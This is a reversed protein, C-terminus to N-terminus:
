SCNTATLSLCITQWQATRKKEDLNRIQHLASGFLSEMQRAKPIMLLGSPVPKEFDYQRIRVFGEESWSLPGLCVSLILFSKPWWVQRM